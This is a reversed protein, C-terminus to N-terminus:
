PTVEHDAIRELTQDHLTELYVELISYIVFGAPSVSDPLEGFLREALKGYQLIAELGEHDAIAM